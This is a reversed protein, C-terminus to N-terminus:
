KQLCLGINISLKIWLLLLLTSGFTSAFAINISGWWCVSYGPKTHEGLYGRKTVYFHLQLQNMLSINDRAPKMCVICLYCVVLLFTAFMEALFERAHIFAIFKIWASSFMAVYKDFERLVTYGFHHTSANQAIAFSFRMLRIFTVKSGLLPCVAATPGPRPRGLVKTSSAFTIPTPHPNTINMLIIHRHMVSM